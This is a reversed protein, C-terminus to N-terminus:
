WAVRVRRKEFSNFEVARQEIVLQPDVEIKASQMLTNLPPAERSYDVLYLSPGAEGQLRILINGEQSRYVASGASNRGQYTVRAEGLAKWWHDTTLVTAEVAMLVVSLVLWKRWHKNFARLM